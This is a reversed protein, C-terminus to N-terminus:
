DAAGDCANSYVFGPDGVTWKVSYYDMSVQVRGDADGNRLWTLTALARYLSGAKGSMSVKLADFSASKNDYATRTQSKSSLSTWTSGGNTSRQLTVKFVVSQHDVAGTRDFALAKFAFVKIWALHAVGMGDEPGYGCKAGPREPSDAHAPSTGWEGRNGGQSIIEFASVSSSLTLALIMAVATATALIRVKPV